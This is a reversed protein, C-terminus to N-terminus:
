KTPVNSPVPLAARRWTRGADNTRYVFFARGGHRPVSGAMWATKPGIVSLADMDIQRDQSSTLVHRWTRGGDRTREVTGGYGNYGFAWAVNSSVAHLAGDGTLTTRVPRAKPTM